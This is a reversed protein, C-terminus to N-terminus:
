RSHHALAHAVLGARPGQKNEHATSTLEHLDQEGIRRPCAHERLPQVPPQERKGRRRTGVRRVHLDIVADVHAKSNVVHGISVAGLRAKTPDINADKALSAAPWVALILDDNLEFFAVAGGEFQQGIIGKTLLGLGDRYFALARELDDVALTLVKIRPKM